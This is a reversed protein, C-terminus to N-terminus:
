EREEFPIIVGKELYNKLGNLLIAWCFSSQKFEANCKPWNIHSFNVITGNKLEKLDFGFTTPSWDDDSKTMKYHIYEGDKCREVRAYWNYTDSFNFNYVAEEKPIGSCKLPWWNVLQNPDSIAEYVKTKDAKIDLNHYISYGM